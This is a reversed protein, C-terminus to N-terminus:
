RSKRRYEAKVKISRDILYKDVARSKSRENFVKSNWEDYVKRWALYRECDLHCGIHRDPCDKCPNDKKTTM